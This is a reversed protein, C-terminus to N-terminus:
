RFRRDYIIQALNNRLLAEQQTDGLADALAIAQEYFSRANSLNGTAQYFAASLQLSLLEEIPNKEKQALAMHQDLAQFAPPYQGIATYSQVLGRLARFQNPTDRSDRALRLAGYYAALADRPLNAARYADGLNNRTNAQGLPDDSSQSRLLLASEYRKIAELYNGVSAAVLGLNSLSLGEGERNKVSRAITLAETISEQAAQLNGGQLLVSGLNNLGYIQGQFDQQTRAVGVRRRLADEAERYRGLKAYAVGLYGYTVGLGEIDGIRQYLDLAQVWNGIAKDLNGNRQAQGGLRLLFDARDRDEGQIGNNLPINLQQDLSTTPADNIFVQSMARPNVLLVSALLVAIGYPFGKGLSLLLSIAGLRHTVVSLYGKKM